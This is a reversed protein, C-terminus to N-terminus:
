KRNPTLRVNDFLVDTGAQGEVIGAVSGYLAPCGETNPRSDHLVVWASPEAKDRPWAKGKVIGKDGEVEVTLKLRYWVDPQVDFSVTKDVRPLADWSVIRLKQINGALMLTYRNAVIGMDPLDGGVQSGRVDAEITYDKSNPLGIYANGRAIFPVENNNVKALVKEGDVTKVFFKGQTNVWGGPVAGDPVKSFDQQYPLVPAVRVRAKAVVGDIEAQVYGQQSSKKTDVTLKGNEIKGDLPPPNTKSGPPPKPAPLSWKPTPDVSSLLAPEGREDFYRVSFSVTEGPHVVVEAPIVQLQAVKADSKAPPPAAAPEPAAKAGKLGICFMEESTSLYVRGNAVAPSGNVEIDATGELPAFFQEHLSVCKKDEPKLIHFKSDVEGVYIKGDALVPSGRAERGYTYKWFQKGTKADFCYLRAIEDAFYIRGEHLIPACWRAKVGDKKWVLKPAGDQIASADLCVIRGKVNNDINEEGHSIYVLNGDVLPSANVAISSIRYSWIKKGTRAQVGVVSGDAMGSILQRQGAITAVVPVSCYSDKVAGAPESWWVVAGTMKNMAVLRNNGKAHDGWSSNNMGIIVLDEDVIPSCIRGGYGSIRGYEESLSRSWVIKGDKDFCFLMGQTGHAYILGTKPDAAVNAWGLRVTVIDAHWVNFKHEWLLKGTDADLCMVREQITEPDEAGSKDKAATYNIFYVRDGLVVPTSRCGFPAKWVLNEGEPSWKDPLNTEPSVGNQWPGRWSYWDAAHATSAAVVMWGVVFMARM